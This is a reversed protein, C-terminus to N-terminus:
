QLKRRGWTVENIKWQGGEQLLDIVGAQEESKGYADRGQGTATLRM